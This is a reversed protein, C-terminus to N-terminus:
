KKDMEAYRFAGSKAAAHGFSDPSGGTGMKMQAAESLARLIPLEIIRDGHYIRAAFKEWGETDVAGDKTFQSQLYRKVQELRQAAIDKDGGCDDNLYTKYNNNTMGEIVKTRHDNLRKVMGLQLGLLDKATQPDVGREHALKKFDGLAQEDISADAPIEFEYGDPSDPVGNFKAVSARFEAKQKDTLKSGDEPLHYPQGFRKIAEHAGKFADDATKYKAFAKAADPNSKLYAYQSHWAQGDASADGSGADAAGGADGGGGGDPSYFFMPFRIM